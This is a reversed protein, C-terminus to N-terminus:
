SMILDSGYRKQSIRRVKEVEADTLLGMDRLRRLICVSWYYALDKQNQTNM